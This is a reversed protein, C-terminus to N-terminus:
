AAGADEGAQPIKTLRSLMCGDELVQAAYRVTVISGNKHRLSFVGHQVGDRVYAAFKGPVDMDPAAIDDIRRGLLEEREYGLMEAAADTVHFYKRDQDVFLVCEDDCAGHGHAKVVTEGVARLLGEPGALPPVQVDVAPKFPGALSVIPISGSHRRVEGIMCEVAARRTLVGILVVDVANRKLAKAVAEPTEAMTVHYGAHELVWRRTKSVSHKSALFLIHRGLAM